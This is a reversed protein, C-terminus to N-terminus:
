ISPSGEVSNTRMSEDDFSSDRSWLLESLSRVLAPLHFPSLENSLLRFVTKSDLSDLCRAVTDFRKVSSDILAEALRMQWYDNFRKRFPYPNGIGLAGDGAKRLSRGLYHAVTENYQLIENFATGVFPPQILGAEGYLFTRRSIGKKLRGIPIRGWRRGSIRAHETLSFFPNKEIHCGLDSRARGYSVPTRTAYIVLCFASSEGTPVVELIPLPPGDKLVHGLIITNSHLDIGDLLYGYVTFLGVLDLTDRRSGVTSAGGTADVLLKCRVRGSNTVAEVSDDLENFGVLTSNERITVGSRNCRQLLLGLVTAEDTVVLDGSGIANSGLYTGVSVKSARFISSGELGNERLRRSTTVWFKSTTLVRTRELVLTSFVEGLESALLLGAPGGGAIVVDFDRVASSGQNSSITM